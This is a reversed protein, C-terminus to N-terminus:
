LSADAWAASSDIPFDETFASEGCPQQPRISTRSVADIVSQPKQASAATDLFVLPKGNVTQHLIPFDKRAREADFRVAPARASM